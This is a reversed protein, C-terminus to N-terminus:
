RTFPITDPSTLWEYADVISRIHTSARFDLRIRERASQALARAQDPNELLRHLEAEWTEPSPDKLVRATQDPVLAAVMPDASAIVAMGSAMADLLLTRQEGRNDPYLLIDARVVLDRREEAADILSVRDLIGAQRAHKWLGTRSAADADVFLMTEARKAVVNCAGVFAGLFSARNRGSGALMISAARGPRLVPHAAKPLHVGWPTLRVLLGAGEKLLAREIGPSPAFFAVRADGSRLARARDALGPRWVELAALANTRKALDIGFNWASGGFVHVIDLQPDEGDIASLRALLRQVRASRSLVLGRDEYGVVDTIVDLNISEELSRPIACRVRLGEDALGVLVRRILSRERLVFAHDAIVLTQM